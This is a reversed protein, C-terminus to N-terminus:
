ALSAYLRERATRESATAVAAALEEVLANLAADLSRDAHGLEMLARDRLSTESLRPSDAVVGTANPRSMPAALTTGVLAYATPLPVPDAFAAAITAESAISSEGEGSSKGNGLTQRSVWNLYNIVLLPDLPTVLGDGSVDVFFSEGHNVGEPLRNGGDPLRLESAGVVILQNIVWHNLLNITLLADIPAVLGDGNVDLHNAPNTWPMAVPAEAELEGGNGSGPDATPPLPATGNNKVLIPSPYNMAAINWPGPHMAPLTYPATGDPNFTRIQNSTGNTGQVVALRDAIEDGTRDVAAAHIPVHRSSLDNFTTFMALRLDPSDDTRGSWVEITSGGTIGAAFILDPIADGDIRAVDLTAGGRFTSAFPLITDLLVPTAGSVDFVYATVQMGSGSVVVIESRGDPVSPNNPGPGGFTGFDGAAVDAGGIFVSPFVSFTKM